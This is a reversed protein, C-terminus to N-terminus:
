APDILLDVPTDSAEVDAAGVTTPIQAPRPRWSQRVPPSSSTSARATSAASGHRRRPTTPPWRRASRVCPLRGRPAAPDIRGSPARATPRRGLSLEHGEGLL